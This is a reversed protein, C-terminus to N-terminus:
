MGEVVVSLKHNTGVKSSEGEIGAEIAMAVLENLPLIFRKGTKSSTIMPTTFNILEFSFQKSNEEDRLECVAYSMVLSDKELIVGIKPKTTM